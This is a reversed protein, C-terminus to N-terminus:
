SDRKSSARLLRDNIARGLGKDPFYESLIIDVDASDLQRLAAFLQRAAEELSGSASLVQLETPQIELTPQRFSIVGVRKDGHEALLEPLSGLYLPKGPAYHSTVMGPAAPNDNQNLQVKMPGAVATLTELDLGGLRYVVTDNGEFGIITSELGVRCEGGDLIYAVQDGLQAAVHAATTPSVYGFPNASPAALPFDLRSLLELSLPHAPIRVAVRPLGSTVLDPVLAQKDLLLTLPGPWFHSALERAAQPVFTVLQEVKELTDTHLILPDFHPRNKARFIKLVAEEDLGNAALGYVTETPITVLEGSRLLSASRSLDQGTETGPM